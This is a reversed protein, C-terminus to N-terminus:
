QNLPGGRDKTDGSRLQALRSRAKTSTPMLELTKEYGQIALDKKGAEMYADALSAQADASDPYLEVNHRFVAIADATKKQEFLLIYGASELTGESLEHNLLQASHTTLAQAGTHVIDHTFQISPSDYTDYHFWRFAPHDGGIADHIIAPAISLGNQGNTFLVLARRHNLDVAVFDKYGPNDGWHWLYKGTSTQEIGWGLGWFLDPSLKVPAHDTCNTCTPDVAVQPTEMQRLTTSRLRRGNLVAEIFLAYDHATTLLSAAANGDKSSIPDRPQGGPSHGPSVNPGPESIYTSDNMGLPTFVLQQMIQNLPKGEIHEVTHQLYVFGEGSYSFRDGPNFLIKLQGGDPRWNPFGTRHSLVLRATIKELRPDDAVVKEPWYHILPTDLDLKGQDVLQLVAYAFVTKSLSAASFRTYDTVPQETKLDVKGFSHVWTTRGKDILAVSLGPIDAQQMLSPIDRNLM